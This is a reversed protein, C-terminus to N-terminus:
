RGLLAHSDPHTNMNSNAIFGPNGFRAELSHFPFRSLTYGALIAMMVILIDYDLSKVVVLCLLCAARSWKKVDPGHTLRNSYIADSPMTLWVPFTKCM